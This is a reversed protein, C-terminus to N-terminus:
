IDRLSFTLQSGRRNLLMRIATLLSVRVGFLFTAAMGLM